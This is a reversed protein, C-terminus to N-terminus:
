QPLELPGDAVNVLPQPFCAAESAEPGLALILTVELVGGSRRAGRVLSDEEFAEAELFGGEELPTFDYEVGNVTLVDGSVSVVQEDDRRQPILTINMDTGVGM